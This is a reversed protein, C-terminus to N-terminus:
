QESFYSHRNLVKDKQQQKKKRNENAVIYVVHDHVAASKQYKKCCVFKLVNDLFCGLYNM